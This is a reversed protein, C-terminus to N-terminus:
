SFNAISVGFSPVARAVYVCIFHFSLLIVFESIYYVHTCDLSKETSRYRMFTFFDRVTYTVDIHLCQSIIVSDSLKYLDEDDLIKVARSNQLKKM